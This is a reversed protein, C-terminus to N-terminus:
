TWRGGAPLRGSIRDEGELLWIVTVGDDLEYVLLPHEASDLDYIAAPSALTAIVNPPAPQGGDFTPLGLWVLLLGAAVTGALGTVPVPRLVESLRQVLRQWPSRAALEADVRRMEPRLANVLFATPPAAPGETWAERVAAGLSEMRRLRDVSEPDSRLRRELRKRARPSLEGDRYAALQREFRRRM